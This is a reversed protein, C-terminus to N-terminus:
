THRNQDERATWEQNEPHAPDRIRDDDDSTDFEDPGVLDDDLAEENLFKSDEGEKAAKRGEKKKFKDEENRM